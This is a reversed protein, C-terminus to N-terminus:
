LIWRCHQLGSNLGQSPFIGQPLSHHGVETNKGPSNRSCFLKAPWLGHPDCLAPCSQAVLLRCLQDELEKSFLLFMQLQQAGQCVVAEGVWAGRYM